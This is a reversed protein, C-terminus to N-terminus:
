PATVEKGDYEGSLTGATAAVDRWYNIKGSHEGSIALNLKLSESGKAGARTASGDLVIGPWWACGAFGYERLDESGSVTMTGGFDCGVKLDNKQDGKGLKREQRLETEVAAAVASADNASSKETLTLKTYEGILHQECPTVTGPTPTTGNLLLDYVPEDVCTDGYGWSAHPGNAIRIMSAKKAHGLVSQSMSLPTIPDADANIILTPFDGGAYPKPRQTPGPTSWFACVLREMYLFEPLQPTNTSLAKAQEM